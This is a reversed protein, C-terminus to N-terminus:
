SGFMRALPEVVKAFNRIAQNLTEFDVDEISKLTGEANKLTIEANSVLTNIEEISASVENMTNMM